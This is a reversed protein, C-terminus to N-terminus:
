LKACRQVYVPACFEYSRRAQINNLTLNILSWNWDRLQRMSVYLKCAQFYSCPRNHVLHEDFACGTVDRQMSSSPRAPVSVPQVHMIFCMLLCEERCSSNARKLDSLFKSAANKASVFTCCVIELVVYLLAQVPSSM